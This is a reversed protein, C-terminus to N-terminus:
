IKSTELSQVELTHSESEPLFYMGYKVNRAGSGIFVSDAGLMLHVYSLRFHSEIGNDALLGTSVLNYGKSPIHLVKKLRINAPEFPFM